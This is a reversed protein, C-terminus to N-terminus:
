CSVSSTGQMSKKFIFDKFVVHKLVAQSLLSTESCHYKLANILGFNMLKGSAMRCQKRFYM